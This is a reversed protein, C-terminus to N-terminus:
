NLSSKIKTGTTQYLKVKTQLYEIEIFDTTIIVVKEVFFFFM